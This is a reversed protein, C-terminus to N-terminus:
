PLVWKGPIVERTSAFVGDGKITIVLQDLTFPSPGGARQGALDYLAGHCVDHFVAPPWANPALLVLDCGNRPDYAIFARVQDQDRVLYIPLASPMPSRGYSWNRAHRARAEMDKLEPVLFLKPKLEMLQSLKAIQVEAHEVIAVPKPTVAAKAAVGMTVSAAFVALVFFARARTHV